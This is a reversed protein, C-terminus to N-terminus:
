VEISDIEESQCYFLWHLLSSCTGTQKLLKENKIQPTKEFMLMLM